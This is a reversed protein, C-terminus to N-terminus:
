STKERGFDHRLCKDSRAEYLSEIMQRRRLKSRIRGQLSLPLGHEYRAIVGIGTCGDRGYCSLKADSWDFDSLEILAACGKVNEAALRAPKQKLIEPALEASQLLWKFPLSKRLNM